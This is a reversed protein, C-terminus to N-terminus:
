QLATENFGFIEDAEEPSLGNIIRNNEIELARLISNDDSM